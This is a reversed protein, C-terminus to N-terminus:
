EEKLTAVKLLWEDPDIVVRPPKRDLKFTFTQEREKVEVTERRAKNDAAFEIEVPMQFLAAQKQTIRLRLEGNDWHWAADYVPYGAGYIWQKFFWDLERGAAREMASQFDATLANRDRYARYYDRIGAFFKQDGMLHRLMHLVWGGKQYNNANLLAFLDTLSPDYIPRPNSGYAQLYAAKDDLMERVFRERGEAHEFFLKEFYTAFGESLWLHHWDSETVSDGFWQHAIEHAVTKELKGSGNFAKEDFFIASSNEMGGFRTSSEVLALKEFPYPGILNEYFALMRLARGFDKLGGVRDKPYLYYTLRTGNWTGANIVAFETAGIVMCYTPIPTAERWHTLRTGDQNNTTEILAGNAIVDYRAPATVFFEVTAKDYPHDIAPFWHHARNPWNDAFAARDGFKNAKIFLGDKPSGHYRLRVRCQEGRHYADALQVTLRDGAQTFTAARDGVSVADVALDAFDLTISKLNEENIAFLIETDGRIQAGAEQLELRIRYDLADIAPVRTYTDRAPAPVLTLWVLAMALGLFRKM